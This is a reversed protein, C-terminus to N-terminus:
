LKAHRYIEGINTLLEDFFFFFNRRLNIVRDSKKSSKCFQHSCRQPVVFLLSNKFNNEAKILKLLM